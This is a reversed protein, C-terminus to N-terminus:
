DPDAPWYWEPPEDPGHYRVRGYLQRAESAAERAVAAARRYAALRERCDGPLLREPKGPVIDSSSRPRPPPEEGWPYRVPAHDRRRRFAVPQHVAGWRPPADPAPPAPSVVGRELHVSDIPMGVSRALTQVQRHLKELAEVDSRAFAAGAEALLADRVARPTSSGLWELSTRVRDYLRGATEITRKASPSM